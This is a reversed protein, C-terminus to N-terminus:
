DYITHQAYQTDLSQRVEVTEVGLLDRIKQRIRNVQPDAEQMAVITLPLRLFRTMMVAGAEWNGYHGTVLIIGRGEAHLAQLMLERAYSGPSGGKSSRAALLAYHEDTVRFSIIRGQRM